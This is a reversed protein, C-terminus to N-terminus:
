AIGNLGRGVIAHSNRDAAGDVREVDRDGNPDRQM